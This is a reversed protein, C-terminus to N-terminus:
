AALYLQRAATTRHRWSHGTAESERRLTEPSGIIHIHVRGYGIMQEPIQDEDIGLRRLIPRLHSPIAGRKQKRKRGIADVLQLYHRLTLQPMNPQWAPFIKELPLLWSTKPQGTSDVTAREIRQPLSTHSAAEPRDVVGARVPNLDVYVMTMLLGAPDAIRQSKFRDEWYCGTCGEEKNARRAVWEKLGGILKSLNGLNERCQAVKQRDSLYMAVKAPDPTRLEPEPRSLPHVSLWRRVVEEDSWTHTRPPDMRVVVHLHNDMVAYAAVDFAFAKALQALRAEIWDKRHGFDDGTVRSRGQWYGRRVCRTTCHYWAPRDLWVTDKRARAM